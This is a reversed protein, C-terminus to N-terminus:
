GCPDIAPGDMPRPTGERHQFDLRSSFHHARSTRPPRRGRRNATDARRADSPYRVPREPATARAAMRRGSGRRTRDPAGRNRRSPRTCAGPVRQAFRKAASTSVITLAFREGDLTRWTNLITKGPGCLTMTDRLYLLRVRGAPGFQRSGNNAPPVDAECSTVRMVACRTCRHGRIACRNLRWDRTPVFCAASISCYLVSPLHTQRHRGTAASAFSSTTSPDGLLWRSRQGITYSPRSPVEGGLYLRVLHVPFNVGADIALQLSGWFRANIEMLHLVGTSAEKKFEVMAVGHWRLSRLLREAYELAAPEAEIAERLVSVGGWPPKERLRRHAFVIKLEGQDCLAFLGLGHGAIERQLMFPQQLEPRTMLLRRLEEATKARVVSTGIWGSPTRLRSRAPKVICPFPLDRLTGLTRPDDVYQVTPNSVGLQDALRHLGVKDSARWFSDADMVAVVPGPELGVRREALVASTIDAMPIVLDVRFDSAAQKIATLFAEEDEFPSPYRFACTCHRSKAALNPVDVEGVIVEMGARGLARTAALASRQHGDTILVRTPM